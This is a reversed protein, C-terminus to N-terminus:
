FWSWWFWSWYFWSWYLLDLVVPVLVELVLVLDLVVLVELVLVLLVLVLLVLVLLVWRAHDYHDLKGGERRVTARLGTVAERLSLLSPFGQSSNRLLVQTHNLEARM